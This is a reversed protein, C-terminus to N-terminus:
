AGMPCMSRVGADAAVADSGGIYWQREKRSEEDDDEDDGVPMREEDGRVAHSGPRMRTSDAAMMRSMTDLMTAVCRMMALLTEGTM